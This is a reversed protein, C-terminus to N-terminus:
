MGTVRAVHGGQAGLVFKEERQACLITETLTEIDLVLALNIIFCEFSSLTNSSIANRYYM